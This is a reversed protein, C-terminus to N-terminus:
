SFARFAAATIRWITLSPLIAPLATKIAPGGLVPLVAMAMPMACDSPESTGKVMSADESIKESSIDFVSDKVWANLFDM